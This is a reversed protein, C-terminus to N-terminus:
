LRRYETDHRHESRLFRQKCSRLRTALHAPRLQLVRWSSRTTSCLEAGATTAMATPSRVSSQIPCRWTRLSHRNANTMTRTFKLFVTSQWLPTFSQCVRLVAPRDSKFSVTTEHSPSYKRGVWGTGYYPQMGRRRRRRATICSFIFFILIFGVIVAALAVWRGWSYWNNNCDIVNGFNDYCSYDQNTGIITQIFHHWSNFQQVRWAEAVSRSM